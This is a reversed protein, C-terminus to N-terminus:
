KIWNCRQWFVASFAGDPWTYHRETMALDSMRQVYWSPKRMWLRVTDQIIRYDCGHLKFTIPEVADEDWWKSQENM